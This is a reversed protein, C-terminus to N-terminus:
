VLHIEIGSARFDDLTSMPADRTTVLHTLDDLDGFRFTSTRGLKDATAVLIRRTASGICARKILADDYTTSTLGHRPDASCAGIVVADARMAEVAVVAHASVFALSDTEIPGGPVLVRASPHTALVAAARLSMSMTTVPRGVLAEAVAFCTTGNDLILSEDDDILQATRLGLAAKREQDTDYRVDFPLLRGRAFPRTAGGHTRAVAGALDLDRLDRRITVASAGTLDVLDGISVAGQNSVAHIIAKHRFSRQM